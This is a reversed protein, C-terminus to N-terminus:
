GTCVHDDNWRNDACRCCRGTYSFALFLNNNNDVNDGVKSSSIDNDLQDLAADVADHWEDENL